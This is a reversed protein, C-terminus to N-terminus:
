LDHKTFFDEWAYVVESAFDLCSIPPDNTLVIEIGEEGVGYRGKGYRGYGYGRQANVKLTVPKRNKLIFHKSAIAIDGCIKIWRNNRMESVATQVSLPITSDNKVWDIISYGTVVFNFFRDSTVEDKLLAADRKLKEFLDRPSHLGYTLSMM